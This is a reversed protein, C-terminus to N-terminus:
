FIAYHANINSEIALRSSALDSPYYIVEQVFGNLYSGVAVREHAGITFRDLTLLGVDCNLNSIVASAQLYVNMTTGNTIASILNQNTGAVGGQTIGAINADDRKGCNLSNNNFYDGLVFLSNNTVSNGLAAIGMFAINNNVKSVHFASAPKDTGTFASAVAHASLYQSSGNFSLAPKSNLTQLSGSSVISPQNATTTQTANYGNGSQDYWTTVFGNNGAGVWAALTGDSVQAATFDAEDPSGSSRRVRVVNTVGIRLQRLSYAAAASTYVDLLLPPQLGGLFGVDNLSFM